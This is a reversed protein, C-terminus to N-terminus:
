HGNRKTELTHRLVQVMLKDKVRGAADKLVILTELNLCRVILGAGLDMLDSRPVLDSYSLNDGITGLVDLSGLKTTFLHHGDGLLYDMKPEIRRGGQGRYITHLEQLAAFLREANEFTRSHVIDVDNTVLPAGQIVGCVGGVLIFEVNHAALIELIHRFSVSANQM